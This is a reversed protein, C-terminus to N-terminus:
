KYLQKYDYVEYKKTNSVFLYASFFSVAALVWLFKLVLEEHTPKFYIQGLMAGQFIFVILTHMTSKWRESYLIFDSEKFSTLSLGPLLGCCTRDDSV